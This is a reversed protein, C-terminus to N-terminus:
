GREREWARIEDPTYYDREKDARTEADVVAYLWERYAILGSACGRRLTEEDTQREYDAVEGQAYWLAFDILEQQELGTYHLVHALEHVLIAVVGDSPPALAFLEEAYQVVYRRNETSGELSSLDVSAAFFSTTSSIPQLEIPVGELDTYLASRVGDLSAQLGAVDPAGPLRAMAQDCATPTATDAPKAACATLSLLLMLVTSQLRM